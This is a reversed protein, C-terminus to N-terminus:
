VRCHIRAMASDNPEYDPDDAVLPEALSRALRMKSVTWLKGTGFHGSRSSGRLQVARLVEDGARTFGHCYPAVVRPHGDYTFALLHKTRIAECLLALVSAPAYCARPGPTM